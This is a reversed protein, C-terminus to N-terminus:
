CGTTDVPQVHSFTGPWAAPAQVATVLAEPCFPVGPPPTGRRFLLWPRERRDATFSTGDTQPVAADYVFPPQPAGTAADVAQQLTFNTGDSSFLHLGVPTNHLIAHFSVARTVSNTTIFLFPDEPHPLVGAARWVVDNVRAYPGRWHPAAVMVLDGAARAGGADCHFMLYFTGNPHFAPSPTLNKSFCPYDV